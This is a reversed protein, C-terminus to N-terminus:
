HAHTCCLLDEDCSHLQVVEFGTRVKTVVMMMMMRFDNLTSM